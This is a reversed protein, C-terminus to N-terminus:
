REQRHQVSAELLQLDLLAPVWPGQAEAAGGQSAPEGLASGNPLAAAEGTGAHCCFLGYVGVESQRIRAAHLLLTRMGFCAWLIQVVNAAQLSKSAGDM